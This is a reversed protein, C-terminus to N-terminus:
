ESMSSPEVSVIAAKSRQWGPSRLRRVWTRSSFKTVFALSNSLASTQCVVNVRPPRM